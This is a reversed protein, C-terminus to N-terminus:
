VVKEEQLLNNISTPRRHRYRHFTPRSRKWSRCDISRIFNNYSPHKGEQLVVRSLNSEELGTLGTVTYVRTHQRPLFVLTTSSCTQPHRHRISRFPSPSCLLFACASLLRHTRPYGEKLSRELIFCSQSSTRTQELSSLSLYRRHSVVSNLEIAIYPRSSLQIERTRNSKIRGPSCESHALWCLAM